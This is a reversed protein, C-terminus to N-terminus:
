VATLFRFSYGGSFGRLSVLPEIGCVERIFRGGIASLPSVACHRGDRRDGVRLLIM